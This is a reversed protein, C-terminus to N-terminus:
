QNPNTQDIWDFQRIGTVPNVWEFQGILTDGDLNALFLCGDACSNQVVGTDLGQMKSERKLKASFAVQTLGDPSWMVQYVEAFDGLHYVPAQCNVLNDVTLNCLQLYYEGNETYVIIIRSNKVSFSIVRRSEQSVQIEQLRAKGTGTDFPLYIWKIQEDKKALFLVGDNEHWTYSLLQYANGLPVGFLREQATLNGNEEVFEYTRLYSSFNYMGWDYFEGMKKGALFSIWHNQHGIIMSPMGLQVNPRLFNEVNGVANAGTPQPDYQYNSQDLFIKAARYGNCEYFMTLTLYRDDWRSLSVQKSSDKLACPEVLAKIENTEGIIEKPLTFSKPPQGGPVITVQYAGKDDPRVMGYVLVTGLSLDGLHYQPAVIVPSTPTPTETSALMSTSSLSPMATSTNTVVSTSQFFSTIQQRMDASTQYGLAVCTMSIGILTVLVWRLLQTNKTKKIDPHTLSFRHIHRLLRIFEQQEKPGKEGFRNYSGVLFLLPASLQDLELIINQLESNATALEGLKEFPNKEKLIEQIKIAKLQSIASNLSLDRTEQLNLSLNQTETKINKKAGNKTDTSHNRSFLKSLGSFFNALSNRNTLNHNNPKNEGNAASTETNSEQIEISVSEDFKSLQKELQREHNADLPIRQNKIESVIEAIWQVGKKQRKYSDYFYGRIENSSYEQHNAIWQKFSQFDRSNLTLGLFFYYDDFEDKWANRLANAYELITDEFSSLSAYEVFQVLDEHKGYMQRLFNTDSTQKFLFRLKEKSQFALKLIALITDKDEPFINPCVGTQFGGKKTVEIVLQALEEHSQNKLLVLLLVWNWFSTKNVNEKLWISPETRLYLYQEQKKRELELFDYFGIDRTQKALNIIEILDETKEFKEFLFRTISFVNQGELTEFAQFAQLGGAQLQMEQYKIPLVGGVPEPIKKNIEENEVFLLTVPDNPATAGVYNLSFRIWGIRHYVLCQIAEAIKLKEEIDIEEQLIVRVQEKKSNKSGANNVHEALTLIGPKPSFLGKHFLYPNHEDTHAPNKIKLEQIGQRHEYDILRGNAEIGAKYLWLFTPKGAQFGELLEERSVSLYRRQFFPRGSPPKTAEIEARAQVITLTYSESASPSGIISIKGFSRINEDDLYFSAPFIRSSIDLTKRFRAPDTSFDATYGLETWEGARGATYPKGYDIFSINM